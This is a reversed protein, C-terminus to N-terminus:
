KSYGRVYYYTVVKINKTEDMTKDGKMRKKLDKHMMLKKKKKKEM